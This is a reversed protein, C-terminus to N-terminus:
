QIRGCPRFNRSLAMFLTNSPSSKSTDGKFGNEVVKLSSGGLYGEMVKRLASEDLKEISSLSKALIEGHSRHSGFICDDPSLNWAQGVVSAEQGISLHAPGTHNYEIGEYAGEKKIRDLMTEFERIIAMDRYM